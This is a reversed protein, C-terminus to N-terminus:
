GRRDLARLAAMAREGLSQDRKRIAEEMMRLADARSPAAENIGDIPIPRDGSIQRLKLLARVGDATSVLKLADREQETMIGRSVLGALWGKVERVVAPANPGLRGLEAEYLKREAEADAPVGQAARAKLAADLYPRALAELQAQTVGAQHAAERVAKWLPDDAPVLGAPAGDPLPLRYGDATDPVVGEGRAIKTRLDTWSKALAEIQPRNAKADWFQEPLWAPRDAPAEDPVADLLGAPAPPDAGAASPVPKNARPEAENDDASSTRTESM